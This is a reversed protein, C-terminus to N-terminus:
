PNLQKLFYYDYDYYYDYHYDYYYYTTTTTPTTTTTSTGGKRGGLEDIGGRDFRRQKECQQEDYRRRVSKFERSKGVAKVYYCATNNTNQSRSPQIKIARRGQKKRKVRVWEDECM